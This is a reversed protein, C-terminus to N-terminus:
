SPTTLCSKIWETYDTQGTQIPVAIIEPLEYPHLALIRQELSRYVDQGTKILLLLEEGKEVSGEWRYVSAIGPIINVCAALHESVLTEAIKEASDRDPVTCLVLQLNTPMLPIYRVRLPSTFPLFYSTFPLPYFTHLLSYIAREQDVLHKWPSEQIIRNHQV